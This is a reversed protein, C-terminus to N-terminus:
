LKTVARWMAIQTGNAATKDLANAITNNAELLLGSVNFITMNEPLANRTRPQVIADVIIDSVNPRFAFRQMSIDLVQLDQLASIRSWEEPFKMCRFNNEALVLSQLSTCKEIAPFLYPVVDDDHGNQVLILHTLQKANHAILTCFPSFATAGALTPNNEVHLIRLNKINLFAAQM